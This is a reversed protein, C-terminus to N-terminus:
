VTHRLRICVSIPKIVILWRLQLFLDWADDRLLAACLQKTYNKIVAIAVKLFLSVLMLDMAQLSSVITDLQSNIESNFSMVELMLCIPDEWLSYLLLPVRKTSDSQIIIGDVHLRTSQKHLWVRALWRSRNAHWSCSACWAWNASLLMM